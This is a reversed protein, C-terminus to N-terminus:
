LASKHSRSPRVAFPIYQQYFILHGIVNLFHILKILMRPSLYNSWSNFCHVICWLMFLIISFWHMFWVKKFYGLKRIKGLKLDVLVCIVFFELTKIEVLQWMAYRCLTLSAEAKMAERNRDSMAQFGWIKTFIFSKQDRNTAAFSQWHSHGKDWKRKSINGEYREWREQGLGSPHHLEHIRQVCWGEQQEDRQLYGCLQWRIGCGFVQRNSYYFFFDSKWNQARIM